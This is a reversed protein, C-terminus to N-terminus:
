ELGCNFIFFFKFVSFLEDGRIRPPHIRNCRGLRIIIGMVIHHPPNNLNKIPRPRSIKFSEGSYMPDRSTM